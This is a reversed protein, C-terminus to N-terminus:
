HFDVFFAIALAIIALLSYIVWHVLAATEPRGKRWIPLSGVLSLLYLLILVGLPWLLNGLEVLTLLGSSEGDMNGIFSSMMLVGALLLVFYLVSHWIAADRKRGKRWLPISVFLPLVGPVAIVGLLVFLFDM